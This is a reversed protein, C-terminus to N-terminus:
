FFFLFINIWQATGGRPSTGTSQEVRANLSESNKLPRVEGKDLNM